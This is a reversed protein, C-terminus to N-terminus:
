ITDPVLIRLGIVMMDVALTAVIMGFLPTAFMLGTPGLSLAIPVVLLMMLCTLAGM